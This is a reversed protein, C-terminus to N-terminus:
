DVPSSRSLRVEEQDLRAQVQRLVIDDIQQEDRLQVLTARERGLLALRLATYQDDHQVAADDAAGDAALLKRRKDIEHRVRDVVREDSGLHRATLDIAEYAADTTAVEALHREEDVSTDVPLRAWRVVTPLLLAQLLTLVIVGCTIVIILDRDPFPAGAALQNPVALALALSVAGRFGATASVTRQRAGVRRSRQAERRDVLRILYPTTYLWAWRAGVVVAAVAAIDALARVSSTSTLNRVASQAQLGVLLFLASSLVTTALSWFGLMQQRAAASTIRPATQSMLLGCVVVALVGSAHLLDALLFAAFPTVLVAINELTPDEIRRRVHSSLLWVLGGALVGGGYSLALLWSVPWVGLSQQGVTIGVAIGYIVIATGDNVLSEARLVTVTRRPLARALVGVATADTPALAAGLVWAPGWAMGLMHHAVAAVAAATAAVLVTSTLVVVRLNSRIERLSTTLSEWYLLAPLFLLLVTEPPLQLDRLTPVFGMLVGVALLSLAPAVPFRQALAGCLLLAVGIVVVMELGLM